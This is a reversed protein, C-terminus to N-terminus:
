RPRRMWDEKIEIRSRGIALANDPVNETVTSGAAIFTNTGITLPAILTSNSGIYAHDGVETPAPDEGNHAAFVVNAGVTCDIGLTADSIYAQNLIRSGEGVHSRVIEVFSGVNVNDAIVSDEKIVAFPGVDCCDGIASHVIRTQDVRSNDGVRGNKTRVDPGITCDKGIVTQGRLACNPLIVTDQGVEVDCEVLTSEPNIISVGQAMLRAVNRRSLARSAWELEQRTNVSQIEAKDVPLTAVLDGNSRLIQIADTLWYEDGGPRSVLQNLAWVLRSADFCYVGANIEAIGLEGDAAVREEVIKEIQGGEDRVIRGYGAPEDTTATLLLLSPRDREFTELLKALTESRILPADGSLIICAGDRGALFSEAMMVAHGTGLAVEQLVFVVDEGLLQRVHEQRYGVVYVQDTIGADDLARKVWAVVPKGAASLLVKTQKTQMREDEAAAMVIACIDM